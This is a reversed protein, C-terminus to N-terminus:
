IKGVDRTEVGNGLPEVHINIEIYRIRNEIANEIEDCIKHVDKLEVNEPMELHLEAFRSHGSKRTRLNHFAFGRKSIEETIIQTEEASLATDVLPSFANRMLRYSERLILLAVAIAVLPDLIHWKTIWLLFLGVAVGVSTYVDTKLHLADAELAISDTKKAVKYLRRSVFFNVIASVAMVAAGIEIKEVPSPAIIRYIAEYIIWGAAIFILFAEIVGSINEYKGHGYPHETDPPTDSLRVSFFAIVAALLDMGSHIAESLISVSGSLIGAVVKLTILSCNSIISLRATKTKESM